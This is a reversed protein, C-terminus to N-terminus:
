AFLDVTRKTAEREVRLAAIVGSGDKVAHRLISKVLATREVGLSDAAAKLDAMLEHDLRATLMTSRGNTTVDPVRNRRKKRKIM